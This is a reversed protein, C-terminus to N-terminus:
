FYHNLEFAFWVASLTSFFCTVVCIAKIKQSNRYTVQFKSLVFHSFAAAAVAFWFPSVFYSAVGHFYVLEDDFWYLATQDLLLSLAWTIIGIPLLIGLSILEVKEYKSLAQHHPIDM